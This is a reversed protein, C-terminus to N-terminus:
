KTGFNIPPKNLSNVVHMLPPPQLVDNNQIPDIAGIYNCGGNGTQYHYGPNCM